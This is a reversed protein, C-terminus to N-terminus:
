YSGRLRVGVTALTVDGGGLIEVVDNVAFTTATACTLTAAQTGGSGGSAFTATGFSTGNRYLTFTATATAGIKATVYSGTCGSPITIAQGVPFYLLESAAPVLGNWSTGIDYTRTGPVYSTVTTGATTQVVGSLAPLQTPSLLGGSLGAYGSAANKNVINEPTFGLAAQAGLNTLAGGATNAGTGGNAVPNVGTISAASGSCNGIVNGTVNGTVDGTLNGTFAGIFSPATQPQTFINAVGLRALTASDLLQTSYLLSASWLYSYVVTPGAQVQVIYGIGPPVFFSYNGYQDAAAPQPVVNLLAPDSYITATPTCPVGVATSPCITIPAFPVPVGYTNVVQGNISFGSSAFSGVSLLAVLIGVAWLKRM